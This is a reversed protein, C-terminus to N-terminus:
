QLDLQMLIKDRFGDPEKLFNRHRGYEVFGFRQYLRIAPNSEYVELHLVEINFREKAKEITHTLLKSGIKKGRMDRRVTIAFLCQHKIKTFGNIYLNAVGLPIGQYEATFAAGMQRYSMSIRVADEVEILNCMPFWRLIDEDLLWETFPYKDEEVADRVIIKDPDIKM